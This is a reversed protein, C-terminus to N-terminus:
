HCSWEPYPFDRTGDALVLVYDHCCMVVTFHYMVLGCSINTQLNCFDIHRYWVVNIRENLMSLRGRLCVCCGTAMNRSVGVVCGCSVHTLLSQHGCLFVCQSITFIILNNFM